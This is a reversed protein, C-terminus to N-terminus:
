EAILVIADHAKLVIAQTVEQGNNTVTDLRGRIRRINTRGLSGKIQSLSVTKPENTSNVLVIGHEFDRRYLGADAKSITFNTIEVSGKRAAYASYILEKKPELTTHFAIHGGTGELLSHLSYFDHWKDDVSTVVVPHSTCTSLIKWDFEVLYQESEKSKSQSRYLEKSKPNRDGLVLPKELSLVKERNTILHEAEGLAKGLWGKGSIEITSSGNADVLMEDFFYPASRGDVLDYEYFADTLLATGLAFRQLSIDEATPDRKDEPVTDGFVTSAQLLMFSPDHYQKELDLTQNVTWCWQAEAFRKIDRDLYWNGNFYLLASGNVLPATTSDFFNSTIILEDFGVKERMNRIMTLSAAASMEHIWPPTEDKIQNRNYDADVKSKAYVGAILDHGRTYLDMLHLGDWTGDKVHLDFVREKWYDLYSQGKENSPCFPSVNLPIISYGDQLNIVKGKTTQLQWDKEIGKLMLFEATALPNSFEKKFDPHNQHHHTDIRPLLVINPNHSRLRKSVSADNLSYMPHLGVVVDSYALLRELEAFAMVPKEGNASGSGNHAVWEGYESFYNGLRPFQADKLHQAPNEAITRPVPDQRTITFNTIEMEFGDNIGMELVYLDDAEGTKLAGSYHGQTVGFGPIQMASRGQHPKAASYLRVWGLHEPDKTRKLVKYDFELGIVTDKPLEVLQYNTWLKVFGNTFISFAGEKISSPKIQLEGEGRLMLSQTHVVSRCDEKAIIKGEDLDKIQIDRVAISGKNIVNMLVQYDDYQKLTAQMSARGESGAPENIFISAEVWDNRSAGNNSFFITEFGKDPTELVKYTFSIEYTGKAKLPLSTNDTLYYQLYQKFGESRGVIWYDDSETPFTGGEGLRFGFSPGRLVTSFDELGLVEYKRGYGTADLPVSVPAKELELLTPSYSLAETTEQQTHSCSYFSLLLLLIVVVALPHNGKRAHHEM